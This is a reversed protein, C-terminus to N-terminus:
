RFLKEFPRKMRAFFPELEPKIPEVLISTIGSLNAALVDAFIQDGVLATTQPVFNMKHIARKVGKTFPKVAPAVFDVGLSEAFPGIRRAFGNSLLCLGVGNSKMVELWEAIDPAIATATYAKLTCDVDLLLSRIGLENLKQPTLDLVSQVKIKPFLINFM